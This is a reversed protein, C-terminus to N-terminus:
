SKVEETESRLLTEFEVRAYHLRRRVTSYPCGLIRTIEEGELGELEYLVFVERHIAKMRDLVQGVRYAVMADSWDPQAPTAPISAEYGVIWELAHRIRRRRRVRNAQSLCIKYLWTRFEARREFRDLYRFVQLFVDQCADDLEASPIGMRRLFCLVVPYYRHHLDCWAQDEGVICRDLVQETDLGEM